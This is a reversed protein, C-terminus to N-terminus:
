TQSSKLRLNLQKLLINAGQKYSVEKLDFSTLKSEVAFVNLSAIVLSETSTAQDTPPKIANFAAVKEDFILAMTKIALEGHKVFLCLQGLTM